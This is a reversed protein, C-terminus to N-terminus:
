VVLPRDIDSTFELAKGDIVSQVLIIMPDHEKVGYMDFVPLASEMCADSFSWSYIDITLRLM